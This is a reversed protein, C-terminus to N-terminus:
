AQGPAKPRMAEVMKKQTETLEELHMGPPIRASLRVQFEQLQEGERMSLSQAQGQRVWGAPSKYWPLVKPSSPPQKQTPPVPIEMSGAGAFVVAKKEGSVVLGVEPGKSKQKKRQQGVAGSAKAQRVFNAKKVMRSSFMGRNDVCFIGAEGLEAICARIVKIPEGVMRALQTDDIPKGNLVLYGGNPHMLCLLDLWLGRAAPSCARLAKNDLWLAPDFDFTPAKM